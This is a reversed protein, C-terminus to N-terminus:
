LLQLALLLVRVNPTYAATSRDSGANVTHIRTRVNLGSATVCAEEGPGNHEGRLSARCESYPAGVMSTRGHLCSCKTCCPQSALRMHTSDQSVFGSFTSRIYRPTNSDHVPDCHRRDRVSLVTAARRDGCSVIPHFFRDWIKFRISRAYTLNEKCLKIRVEERSRDFALCPLGNVSRDSCYSMPMSVVCSCLFIRTTHHCLREKTSTTIPHYPTQDALHSHPTSM